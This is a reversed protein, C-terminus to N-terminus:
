KKLKAMREKMLKNAALNGKGQKVAEILPSGDSLARKFNHFFIKVDEPNQCYKEVAKQLISSQFEGLNFEDIRESITLEKEQPLRETM